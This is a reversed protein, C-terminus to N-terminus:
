WVVPIPLSKAVNPATSDILRRNVGWLELAGIRRDVHNARTARTHALPFLAKSPSLIMHTHCCNHCRRRNDRQSATISRYSALLKIDKHICRIVRDNHQGILLHIRDPTSCGVKENPNNCVAARGLSREDVLGCWPSGNM